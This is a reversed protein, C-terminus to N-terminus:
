RASISHFSDLMQYITEAQHEEVSVGASFARSGKTAEFVVGGRRARSMLTTLAARDRADDRHRLHESAPAAFSSARWATKSACNISRYKEDTWSEGALNKRCVRVAPDRGGPGTRRSGAPRHKRM